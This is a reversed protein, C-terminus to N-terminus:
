PIVYLLPIHVVFGFFEAGGYGLTKHVGETGFGVNTTHKNTGRGIIQNGAVISNQSQWAEKFRQVLIMAERMASTGNNPDVTAVYVEIQFNAIGMKEWDEGAFWTIACPLTNLNNPYNASNPAIRIGTISRNVQQIADVCESISAM